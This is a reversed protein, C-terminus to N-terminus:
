STARSKEKSTQISTSGCRRQLQHCDILPMLLITANDCLSHFVLRYKSIMTMPEMFSLDGTIGSDVAYFNELSPLEGIEIPIPSSFDNKSIDLYGVSYEFPIFLWDFHSHFLKVNRLM